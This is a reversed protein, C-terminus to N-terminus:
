PKEWDRRLLAHIDNKAAMEDMRRMRRRHIRESRIFWIALGIVILFPLSVLVFTM